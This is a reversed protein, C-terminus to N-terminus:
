LAEIKFFFFTRERYIATDVTAFVECISDFNKGLLTNNIHLKKNVYTYTPASPVSTRISLIEPPGGRFHISKSAWFNSNNQVFLYAVSIRRTFM